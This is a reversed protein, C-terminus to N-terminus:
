KKTLGTLLKLKSAHLFFDNNGMKELERAVAEARYYERKSSFLLAGLYSFLQRQDSVTALIRDAVEIDDVVSQREVKGLKRNKLRSVLEARIREYRVPTRGYTTNASDMLILLLGFVTLYGSFTLIVKIAEIWYYGARGRYALDSGYHRTIKDLGTLLARGAGQRSAFQDAMAEWTSDNFVDYGFETRKTEIYDKVLVVQVANPDNANALERPDVRSSNGLLSKASVIYSEREAPNTTRSLAASLQALVFNTSITCTVFEIYSFYHGVEHLIIAACEQPTYLRSDFFEDGITMEAVINAYEGFVMGRVIDVRSLIGPNKTHEAILSKGDFFHAYYSRVQDCLIAHNMDTVPVIIWAAAPNEGSDVLSLNITLNTYKKICASLEKDIGKKNLGYSTVGGVRGTIETLAAFFDGNQQDIAEMVLQPKHSLHRMTDGRFSFPLSDKCVRVIMYDRSAEYM